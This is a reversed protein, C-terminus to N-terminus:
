SMVTFARSLSLLVPRMLTVTVTSGVHVLRGDDTPRSLDVQVLDYVRGRALHHPDIGIRLAVRVAAGRLRRVPPGDAAGCHQTAVIGIDEVEVQRGARERELARRVVLVAPAPVPDGQGGVIPRMRCGKIHCDVDGVHLFRARERQPCPPTDVALCQHCRQRVGVVHDALRPLPLARGAPRAAPRVDGVGVGVAVRGAGGVDAVVQARADRVRVPGTRVLGGQGRVGLERGEVVGRRVLRRGRGIREGLDRVDRLVGGGPPVDHLHHESVRLSFLLEGVREAAGILKRDAGSRAPDGHLAPFEVVLLGRAVRDGDTGGVGVPGSAHDREPDSDAVHVLRGPDRKCGCRAAGDGHAPAGYGHVLVVGAIQDIDGRGVGLAGVGVVRESSPPVWEVENVSLLVPAM